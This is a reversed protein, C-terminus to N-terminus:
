DPAREPHLVRAIEFILEDVTALVRMMARDEDTVEVVGTITFLGPHRKMSDLYLDAAVASLAELLDRNM